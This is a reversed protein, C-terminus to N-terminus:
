EMVAAPTSVRVQQSPALGRVISCLWSIPGQCSALWQGTRSVPQLACATQSGTPPGQSRPTGHHLTGGICATQESRHAEPQKWTM